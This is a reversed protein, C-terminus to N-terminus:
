PLQRVRKCTDRISLVRGSEREAVAIVECARASHRDSIYWTYETSAPTGDLLLSQDPNGFRRNIRSVNEGECDGLRSGRM